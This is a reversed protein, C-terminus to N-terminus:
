AAGQHAPRTVHRVEARRDADRSAAAGLAFRALYFQWTSQVLVTAITVLGWTLLIRAIWRHAGVRYLMLNSPVEFLAYATFFFVQGLTFATASVGLEAQLELKAFGVNSRDIYAIVYLLGLFPLLRWATKKLVRREM